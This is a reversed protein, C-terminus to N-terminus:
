RAGGNDHPPDLAEAFHDSTLVEIDEEADSPGFAALALAELRAIDRRVAAPDRLHLVHVYLITPPHGVDVVLTGPTLGIAMTVATLVVPTASPLHVALIGPRSHDTPTLVEWAVTATSRVLSVLVYWTFRALAVPRLRGLRERRGPHFLLALGTAVVAGGLVNAITWSGWLTVWLGVVVLWIPAQLAIRHLLPSGDDVTTDDDLHDRGTM